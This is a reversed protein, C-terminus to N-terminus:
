SVNLWDHFEITLQDIFSVSSLTFSEILDLESGEIDVKVISIIDYKLELKEILSDWTIGEVIDVRKNNSYSYFNEM